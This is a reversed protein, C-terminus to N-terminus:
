KVINKILVPQQVIQELLQKVPIVKLLYLSHDLM